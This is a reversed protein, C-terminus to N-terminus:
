STQSIKQIVPKSCYIWRIFGMICKMFIGYHVMKYCFHACMHVNRDCFPANHSIPSTCQLIQAVPNNPRVQTFIVSRTESIDTPCITSGFGLYITVSNQTKSMEPYFSLLICSLLLGLPTLWWLALWPDGNAMSGGLGWGWGGGGGWIDPQSYWADVCNVWSMKNWGLTIVM